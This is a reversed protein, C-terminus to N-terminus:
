CIARIALIPGSLELAELFSVLIYGLPTLHFGLAVWSKYPLSEFHKVQPAMFVYFYIIQVNCKVIFQHLVTRACQRPQGCPQHIYIYIYIYM